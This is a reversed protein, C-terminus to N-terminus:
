AEAAAVQDAQMPLAANFNQIFGRQGGKACALAFVRGSGLLVELRTTSRYLAKLRCEKAPAAQSIQKPAKKPLLCFERFPDSLTESLNRQYPQTIWQRLLMNRPEVLRSIASKRVCAGTM